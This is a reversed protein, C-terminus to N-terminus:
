ANQGKRKYPTKIEPITEKFENKMFAKVEITTIWQENLEIGINNIFGLNNAVQLTTGTGCFPDVIIINKDVELSNIIRYILEYPFTANHGMNYKQSPRKIEWINTFNQAGRKLRFTKDKYLWFIREDLPAFKSGERDATTLRNWIIEQKLKLKTEMIWKIPMILGNKTYRNKHNYFLAGNEKLVRHCENLFEIQWKEYKTQEMNDKYSNVVVNGGKKNGLNYPPSTIILDISNDQQQQLWDLSDGQVILTNTKAM